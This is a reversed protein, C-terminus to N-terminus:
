EGEGVRARGQALEAHGAGYLAPRYYAGTTYRTLITRFAREAEPAQGLHAYADGLLYTARERAAESLGDLRPVTAAVLRDYAGLAHYVETLALGLDATFGSQPYRAELTELARAAEAQRNLRILHFAEAYGALPAYTAGPRETYARRYLALAGADDNQRLAAEAAWLLAVAAAEDDSAADFGVREFAARAQAWDDREFFYRGVGLRAVAAFPHAPYRRTFSEFLVAARSGRGLALTSQAEYFLADAAEPRADHRSRFRAFADAAREYQREAYARYARRFDAHPGAPDTPQAQLVAAGLLLPVLLAGRRTFSRFSRVLTM